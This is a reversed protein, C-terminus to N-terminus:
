RVDDLGVFSGEEATIWTTMLEIGSTDAPYITCEAPGDGSVVVQAALERGEDTANEGASGDGDRDADVPLRDGGGDTSHTCM